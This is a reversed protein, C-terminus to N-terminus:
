SKDFAFINTAVPHNVLDNERGHDASDPPKVSDENVAQQRLTIAIQDKLM